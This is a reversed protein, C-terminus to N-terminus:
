ELRAHRTIMSQVVQWGPANAVYCSGNGWYVHIPFGNAWVIFDGIAGDPPPGDAWNVYGKPEDTMEPM